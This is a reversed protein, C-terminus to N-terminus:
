RFSSGGHLVVQVYLDRPLFKALLKFVVLTSPEAATFLLNENPNQRLIGLLNRVIKIERLFRRSYKAKRDPLIIVRWSISAAISPGVQRQVQEIHSQEGFFLLEERPFATRIMELMGANFPVHEGGWCVPECIVIM